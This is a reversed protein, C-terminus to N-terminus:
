KGYAFSKILTGIAQLRDSTMATRMTVKLRQNNISPHLFSM